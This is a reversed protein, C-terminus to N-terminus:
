KKQVLLENKEHDSSLRVGVVNVHVLRGAGYDVLAPPAGETAVPTKHKKSDVAVKGLTFVIRADLGVVVEDSFKKAEAATNFPLNLVIPQARWVSQPPLVEDEDGPQPARFPKAPDGWALSVVGLGDTCELLGDVEVSLRKKKKNYPKLELGGGSHMVAVFTAGRVKEALSARKAENADKEPGEGPTEPFLAWLGEPCPKGNVAKLFTPSDWFPDLKAPEIKPIAALRKAEKEDEYAKREAERRRQAEEVKKRADRCGTTGVSLAAVLAFTLSRRAM